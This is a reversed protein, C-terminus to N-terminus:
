TPLLRSQNASAYRHITDVEPDKKRRDIYRPHVCKTRYTQSVIKSVVQSEEADLM